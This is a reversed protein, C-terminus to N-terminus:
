EIIIDDYGLKEFAAKAAKIEDDTLKSAGTLGVSIETKDMTKKVQPFIQAIAKPLSDDVTLVDKETLQITTGLASMDLTVLIDCGKMKDKSLWIEASKKYNSTKIALLDSADIKVSTKAGAAKNKDACAQALLALKDSRDPSQVETFLHKYDYSGFNPFITDSLIVNKFGAKALESAIDAFYNVTDKSYPSAWPKGGNESAADLWHWSSDTVVGPELYAYGGGDLLRPTLRDYLTSIDAIPTIKAATCAKIIQAPTLKGKVVDENDKIVDVSSKYLLEGRTNKLYFVVTDYGSSTVTKLYDNLAKESALATDPATVAFRPGSPQPVEQPKSTTTNDTGSTDVSSNESEAPPTWVPESVNQGPQSHESFFKLIPPAVSYGVFILVAIVLLLLILEAAKRGKSKRRRYLNRRSRKIKIGKKRM